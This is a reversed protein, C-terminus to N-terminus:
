KTMGDDSNEDSGKNKTPLPYVLESKKAAFLHEQFWALAHENMARRTKPKSPGHGMEKYVIM